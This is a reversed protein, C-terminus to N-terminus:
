SATPAPLSEVYLSQSPFAFELGLEEAIRMFAFYCKAREDLETSWDPVDLFFYVMVDLSSAGFNAFHVECTGDWVAPNSELAARARAVFADLQAQSSGYTFGLTTKVRRVKRRGLNDIRSNAVKGNPVSVVSNYFTRIRTSRFGVEEVVGEVGDGVVVWDGIQFPRDTFITISGFLNEVTDKAALAFALGGIGLGALLSAVDVGVNQLVFVIGLVWIAVVVARQLLPIVQDDMKSDTTAARKKFYDAIVDVVRVLILVAALSALANALFLSVRAANVGLQVDPIGWVLVLGAFFLTLPWRTGAVARDDLKINARRAFRILQDALLLQALLGVVGAVLLLLALFAWQWTNLGFLRGQLQHPILRQVTGSLGSFTEDYLRNADLVLDKSILWRDGRKILALQPFTAVPVAISMGQEDEFDPDASMADVPVYIGRADLVKKIKRARAQADATSGGLCAAAAAPDDGNPPLNSLLSDMASQPNACPNPEQASAMTAFFLAALVLLLRALM